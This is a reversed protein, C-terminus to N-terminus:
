TIRYKLNRRRNRNISRLKGYVDQKKIESEALIYAEDAKSSYLQFKSFMQNYTEDYSNNFLIEFMKSKLYM